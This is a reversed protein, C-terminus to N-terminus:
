PVRVGVFQEVDDVAATAQERVYADQDQLGQSLLPVVRATDLARCLRAVHGFALLANGRVTVDEHAALGICIREVWARDLVDASMGIVIPVVRLEEVVGRQLVTEVDAETWGDPFPHMCSFDAAHVVRVVAVRTM